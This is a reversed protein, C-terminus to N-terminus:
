VIERLKSWWCFVYVRAYVRSRHKCNVMIWILSIFVYDMNSINESSSWNTRKYFTWWVEDALYIATYITIQFIYFYVNLQINIWIILYYFYLTFFFRSTIDIKNREYIMEVREINKKLKFHSCGADLKSVINNHFILSIPKWMLYV